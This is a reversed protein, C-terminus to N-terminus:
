ERQKKKKMVIVIRKEEKRLGEESRKMEISVVVEV